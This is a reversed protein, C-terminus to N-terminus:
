IKSINIVFITKTLYRTGATLNSSLNNSLLYQLSQLSWIDLYRLLMLWHTMIYVVSAFNTIFFLRVPVINILKSPTTNSLSILQIVRTSVTNPNDFRLKIESNFYCNKFNRRHTIPKHWIQSWLGPVTKFTSPTRSKSLAIIVNHWINALQITTLEASVLLLLKTYIFFFHKLSLTVTLNMNTM